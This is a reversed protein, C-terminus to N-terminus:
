GEHSGPLRDLRRIVDLDELLDLREVLRYQQFLGFRGGIVAEEFATLDDRLESDRFGSQIALVLLIGAFGAALALPVPHLWWTRAAGRRAREQRRGRVEAGYLGWDIEPPIPVSGGLDNLLRRFEGLTRRCEACGDLHSTVRDRDSPPLGDRLYPILETEPHRSRM